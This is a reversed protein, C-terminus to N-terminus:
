CASKVGFPLVYRRSCDCENNGLNQIVKETKRAQMSYAHANGTPRNALGPFM